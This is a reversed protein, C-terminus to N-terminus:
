LGIFVNRNKESVDVRRKKAAIMIVVAITVKENATLTGATGVAGVFDAKVIVGSKSGLPLLSGSIEMPRLPVIPM